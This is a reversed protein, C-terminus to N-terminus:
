PSPVRSRYWRCTAAIGDELPVRPQWALRERTESDDIRLSGLLRDAVDGRGIMDLPLRLLVRPCRFVRAPRGLARAIARMLLPTSPEEADRLLFTGHRAAPHALAVEILDVLNEVFVLSRQNAISGFPLPLARDMLRLLALFNGKVGPGYVLPPRLVTLAPGGASAARVAEEISWKAFGYADDPAASQGARFPIEDTPEGLVKISSMLVLQEAGSAAAGRAVRAALGADREIWGAQGPPAHARSALHIAARAGKLLAAWDISANTLDGLPHWAVGPALPATSPSRAVAIVPTGRAALRAVLATGIFGAAGIVAVPASAASSM